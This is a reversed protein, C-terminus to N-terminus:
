KRVISAMDVAFFLLDGRRELNGSLEVAEAVYPLVAENVAGYETSTLVYNTAKGQVDRTVFLPTIGGAICRVACARHTKGFGPKMVGLYCKSDMIEGVLAHEGFAEVIPASSDEDIVVVAEEGDILEFLGRGERTIFNGQARVRKGNMAATREGAGYKLSSVLLVGRAGSASAPDEVYVIPYPEVSLHGEIAYVQSTDWVGSGPDQQISAVVFAMAMAAVMVGAILLKVFPAMAKPLPLYGVYFADERSSM